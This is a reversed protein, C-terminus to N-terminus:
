GDDKMGELIELHGKANGLIEEALACLAPQGALDAACRELLAVDSRQRRAAAELLYDLALDNIAAFEMPFRGPDPRGGQEVIAEAVRQAYTRQDAVLDELVCEAQQREPAVWPKADSLYMPLSRCLVHMIRNLVALTEAENM